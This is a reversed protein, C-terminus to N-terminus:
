VTITLAITASMTGQAGSRLSSVGFGLSGSSLRNQALSRAAGVQRAEDLSLNLNLTSPQSDRPQM